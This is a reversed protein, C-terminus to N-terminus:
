LTKSAEVVSSLRCCNRTSRQILSTSRLSLATLLTNRSIPQSLRQPANVQAAQKYMNYAEIYTM